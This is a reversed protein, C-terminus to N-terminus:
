SNLKCIKGKLIGFLNFILKKKQFIAVIKVKDQM